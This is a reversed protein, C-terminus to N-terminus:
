RGRRSPHTTRWCTGPCRSGRRGSGDGRPGRSSRRPAASWRRGCRSGRGGASGAHLAAGRRRDDARRADEAHGVRVATAAPLARPAPPRGRPGRRTSGAHAAPVRSPTGARPSARRSPAPRHTKLPAPHRSLPRSDPPCARLSRRARAPSHDAPLYPGGGPGSRGRWPRRVARHHGDHGRTVAPELAEVVALDGHGLGPGALDQDPHEGGADVGGVDVGAEAPVRRAHRAPRSAGRASAAALRPGRDGRVVAAPARRRRERQDLAGVAAPADTATPGPPSSRREPQRTARAGTCAGARAEARRSVTQIPESKSPAKASYTFAGAESTKATSM